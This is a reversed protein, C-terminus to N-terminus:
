HTTAYGSAAVWLGVIELLVAFLAVIRHVHRSQGPLFTRALGRNLRYLRTWLWYVADTFVTWVDRVLRMSRGTVSRREDMTAM